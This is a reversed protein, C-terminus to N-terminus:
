TGVFCRRLHRERLLRQSPRAVDYEVANTDQVDDAEKCHYSSTNDHQGLRRHSGLEEEKIGEAM